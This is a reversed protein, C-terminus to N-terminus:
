EHRTGDPMIAGELYVAQELQELTVTSGQLNALGRFANQVPLYYLICLGRSCYRAPWDEM